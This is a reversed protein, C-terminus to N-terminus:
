KIMCVIYIFLVFIRMYFTKQIIHIYFTSPKKIHFTRCMYKQTWFLMKKSQKQILLTERRRYQSITSKYQTMAPFEEGGKRPSNLIKTILLAMKLRSETWFTREFVKRTFKEEFKSGVHGNSLKLKFQSSHCSKKVVEYQVFM